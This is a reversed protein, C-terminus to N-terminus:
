ARQYYVFVQGPQSTSTSEQPSLTILLPVPVSLPAGDRGGGKDGDEGKDGGENEAVDQAGEVGDNGATVDPSSEGADGGTAGSAFVSVLVSVLVIASLSIFFLALVAYSQAKTPKSNCDRLWRTQYRLTVAPASAQVESRSAAIFAPTAPPSAVHTVCTTSASSVNSGAATDATSSARGYRHFPSSSVLEAESFGWNSVHHKSDVAGCSVVDKCSSSLGQPLEEEEEEETEEGAENYLKVNTMPSVPEVTMLNLTAQSRIERQATGASQRELLLLLPEIDDLCGPPTTPPSSAVWHGGQCEGPVTGSMENSPPHTALFHLRLKAAAVSLVHLTESGGRTGLTHAPTDITTDMEVPDDIDM